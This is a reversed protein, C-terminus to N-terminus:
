GPADAGGLRSGEPVVIRRVLDPWALSQGAREVRAATTLAADWDAANFRRGTVAGAEGSCLWLLPAVMVSPALLSSRPVGIDGTVQATDAPGGPILVNVTVGTGALARAAIYSHAELAAKSPGYAEFSLMTQFTTTVNIVRGWGRKIMGPVTAHELYFPGNANTALMRSWTGPDIEWFRIPRSIFDPRISAAGIGANNVIIDAAGFRASTEAVAMAVDSYRSIDARFSAIADNGIEKAIADYTERPEEIDFLALRAGARALGLAMAAGLGRAAGTVIATRQALEAM